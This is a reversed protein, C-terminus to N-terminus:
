CYGAPTGWLYFIKHVALAKKTKALGNRLLLELYMDQSLNGAKFTTSVIWYKEESAGDTAPGTMMSSPLGDHNCEISSWSPDMAVIKYVAGSAENKLLETNRLDLVEWTPHGGIARALHEIDRNDLGTNRVDFIHWRNNNFLALSLHHAGSDKVGSNALRLHRWAMSKGFVLARSLAKIGQNGIKTFGLDVTHWERGVLAMALSHVGQDTVPTSAISLVKWTKNRDIALGLRRAGIDGIVTNSLDFCQWGTDNDDNSTFIQALFAAGDKGINSFSLSSRTCSRNSSLADALVLAGKYTLRTNHLSLTRGITYEEGMPVMTKEATLRERSDYLLVDM